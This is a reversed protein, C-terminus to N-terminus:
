PLIINLLACTFIGLVLPLLFSVASWKVSKTEKYITLMTTSCPFHFMSFACACIATTVTWGNDVLIMRISEASSFDVLGNSCLYTMLAIPLVIENAPFGLLFAVMMTGDMGLFEGLPNLFNAFHNLLSVGNTQINALIWIILGAPAAVCVARALVFIVKEKLADWVVTFFKPKRFSPLELVFSSKEGKLVTKSLVFSSFMTYIVSVCIFLLLVLAGFFSDKVFFMSILIILFPFRGNCPTLSNTIIAILRERPSDIIRAGTVGVANCGFGMCTTLAQKGCANCKSFYPDLNFAIRPLIGIDEALAFLPFFIAMPPLMVAVVWGLVRYIGSCLLSVIVSPTGVSNLFETIKAEGLDVLQKLMESPYNSGVITLWLIFAFVVLMSLTSTYKGVLLKDAWSKKNDLSFDKKVCFEFISKAKKIIENGMMEGIDDTFGFRELIEDAKILASSFRYDDKLNIKLYNELDDIFDRDQLIREALFRYNFDKGDLIVKLERELKRVAMEIPSSYIIKLSKNENKNNVSNHINELLENIGKGSKATACVVPVGLMESLKEDNVMIGSKKAADCLNLVVIMNDTMQAVQLVLNLNRELSTSDVVCVVTDPKEFCIHNRAIKEDESRSLLSYTGPLDTIEYDNFKYYFKGKIADVTKGTWNGTHTHMGTLENFVTSKGVNPNGVLAVTKVVSM